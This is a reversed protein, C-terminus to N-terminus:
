KDNAIIETNVTPATQTSNETKAVAQAKLIEEPSSTIM